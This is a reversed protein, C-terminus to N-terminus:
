IHSATGGNGSYGALKTAITVVACEQELERWWACKVGVCCRTDTAYPINDLRFPCIRRTEEGM